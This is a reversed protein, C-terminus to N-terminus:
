SSNLINPGIKETATYRHGCINCTITITPDFKFYPNVYGMCRVCRLQAKVTIAPVTSSYAGLPM